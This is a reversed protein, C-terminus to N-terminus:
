EEQVRKAIVASREDHRQERCNLNLCHFPTKNLIAVDVSVISVMVLIANM